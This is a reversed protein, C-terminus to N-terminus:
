VPRCTSPLKGGIYGREVVEHYSAIVAFPSIKRTKLRDIRDEPAKQTPTERTRPSNRGSYELPQWMRRRHLVETTCEIITAHKEVFISFDFNEHCILEFLFISNRRSNGRIRDQDRRWHLSNLCALPGKIADCRIYCCVMWILGEAASYRTFM